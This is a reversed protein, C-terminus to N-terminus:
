FSLIFCVNCCWVKPCDTCHHVRVGKKAKSVRGTIPTLRSQTDETGTSKFPAMAANLSSTRCQVHSMEMSEISASSRRRSSSDIQPSPSLVKAMPHNMFPNLPDPKNYHSSSSASRPGSSPTLNPKAAAVNSQLSLRSASHAPQSGPRTNALDEDNNIIHNLSAM